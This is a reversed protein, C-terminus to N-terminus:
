LQINHQEGWNLTKLTLHALPAAAAQRRLNFATSTNDTQIRIASIKEKILRRELWRLSCLIAALERQNSSNL